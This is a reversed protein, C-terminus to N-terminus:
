HLDQISKNPNNGELMKDLEIGLREFSVTRFLGEIVKPNKAAELVDDTMKFKFRNAFRIARVVRLPDDLFTQLPEM